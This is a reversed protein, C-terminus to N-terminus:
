NKEFPEETATTTTVEYEVGEARARDRPNWFWVYLGRETFFTKIEAPTNGPRQSNISCVNATKGFRTYVTYSGITETTSVRAQLASVGCALYAAVFKFTCIM